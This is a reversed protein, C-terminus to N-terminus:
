VVAILNGLQGLVPLRRECQLVAAPADGHAWQPHFGWMGLDRSGVERKEVFPKLRDDFWSQGSSEVHLMSQPAAAAFSPATAAAAPGPAAAAATATALARLTAPQPPTLPTAQPAAASFAPATAVAVPGTAAAAALARPTAPRPPTLSTAQAAVGNALHALLPAVRIAMRRGLEVSGAESLHLGDAEWFGNSSMRPLVEESDYYALIEPTARAWDQLLRALKDREAKFMGHSPALAITPLGLEHCARHLQNTNRLIQHISEFKGLDNTGVMLLVLDWPGESMSAHRLGKYKHGFVDPIAADDMKVALEAGTLGSLGFTVADCPPGGDATVAAALVEGYPRFGYARDQSFKAGAHYLGATVSDGYCLLRLPRPGRGRAVRRPAPRGPFPAERPARAGARDDLVVRQGPHASAASEAPLFSSSHQPAEVLNGRHVPLSVSASRRSISPTTLPM